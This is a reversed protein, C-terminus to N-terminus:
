VTRLPVTTQCGDHWEVLRELLPSRHCCAENASTVVCFHGDASSCPVECELAWLVQVWWLPHTGGEEQGSVAHAKGLADVTADEPFAAAPV